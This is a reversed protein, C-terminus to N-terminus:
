ARCTRGMRIRQRGPLHGCTACTAHIRDLATLRRPLPGRGPVFWLFIACNGLMLPFRYGACNESTVLPVM